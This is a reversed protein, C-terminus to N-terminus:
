FIQIEYIPMLIRNFDELNQNVFCSALIPIWIIVIDKIFYRIITVFAMWVYKLFM